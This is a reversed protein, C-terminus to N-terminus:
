IFVKGLTNQYAGLDYAVVLHQVRELLLNEFLFALNKGKLYPHPIGRKKKEKLEGTFDILTHLEDASFDCTKLFDKGKFLALKNLATTYAGNEDSWHKILNIYM